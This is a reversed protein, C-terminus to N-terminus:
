STKATVWGLESVVRGGLDPDYIPTLIETLAACFADYGVEEIAPVAPGAAALGRVATSVDPWENIAEVTGREVVDFGTATLM